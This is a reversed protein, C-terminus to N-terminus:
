LLSILIMTRCQQYLHASNMDRMSETTFLSRINDELNAIQKDVSAFQLDVSVKVAKIKKDINLLVDKRLKDTKSDLM